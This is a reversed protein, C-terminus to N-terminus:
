RDAFVQREVVSGPLRGEIHDSRYAGFASRCTSAQAMVRDSIAFGLAQGIDARLRM